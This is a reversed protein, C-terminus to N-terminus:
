EDAIPITYVFAAGERYVTELWIRGGQAEVLSKSIFLGLGNGRVDREVAAGFRSYKQFLKPRDEAAIGPGHDRVTIQLMPGRRTVLVDIPDTPQSFKVANSVLNTIVQWHRQQDGFALPLREDIAVHFREAGDRVGFDKVTSRVEGALDFPAFQYRLENAEILALELGEEVLRSLNRGNRLIADLSELKVGEPLDPWRDRLTTAFGAIVALPTRIDHTILALFENKLADLRQLRNIASAQQEALLLHLIANGISLLVPSLLRVFGALQPGPPFGVDLVATVRGGQLLPIAVYSAVGVEALEPDEAFRRAGTNAVSVPSETAVVQELVSGALPVLAGPTLQDGSSGTRAATRYQDGESVSLRLHTVPVVRELASGVASLASHLDGAAAVAAEGAQILTSETVDRLFQASGGGGDGSLPSSTIEVLLRSGDSRAAAAVHTVRQAVADPALAGGVASRDERAFLTLFRRGRLESPRLGLLSQASPNSDVVAGRRDLVVVAQPSGAVVAQLVDRDGLPSRSRQRREVDMHLEM